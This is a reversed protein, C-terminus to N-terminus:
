HLGSVRAHTMQDAGSLSMINSYFPHRLERWIFIVIIVILM